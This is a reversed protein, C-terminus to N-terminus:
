ALAKGLRALAKGLRALAKGLRALAKGLRARPRGPKRRCARKSFRASGGRPPPSAVVAMMFGCAVLAQMMFPAMVSRAQVFEALDV